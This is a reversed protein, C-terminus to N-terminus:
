DQFCLDRDASGGESKSDESRSRSRCL